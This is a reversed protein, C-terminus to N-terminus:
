TCALANNMNSVDEVTSYALTVPPLLLCNSSLSCPPLHYVLRTGLVKETFNGFLNGETNYLPVLFSVNLHHYTVSATHTFFMLSM